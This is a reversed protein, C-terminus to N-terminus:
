IRVPLMYKAPRAGQPHIDPAKAPARRSLKYVQMGYFIPLVVKRGLSQGESTHGGYPRGDPANGDFTQRTVLMRTAMLPTDM